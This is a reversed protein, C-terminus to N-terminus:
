PSSFLNLLTDYDANVSANKSASVVNKSMGDEGSYLIWIEVKTKLTSLFSPQHIPLYTPLNPLRLGYYVQYLDATVSM